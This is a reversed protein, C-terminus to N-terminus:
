GRYKEEGEYIFCLIGDFDYNRSGSLGCHFCRVNTFYPKRMITPSDFNGSCDYLHNCDLPDFM